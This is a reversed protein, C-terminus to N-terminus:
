RITHLFYKRASFNWCYTMFVSFIKSLMFYMGFFETFSWILITNIILGAGTIILYYIFEKYKEKVVRIKFIWGICLFYNLISGSMFSIISAVLYNLGCFKTLIFLLTFDIITCVGGVVSYKLAQIFFKNKVILLNCVNNLILKM